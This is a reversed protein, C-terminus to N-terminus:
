QIRVMKPDDQLAASAHKLAWGDQAVAIRVSAGDGLLVFYM